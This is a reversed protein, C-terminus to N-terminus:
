LEKIKINRFWIPAGAHKGQFGIYGKTQLSALPRNLWSPIDSGDPNKKASTWKSMDMDTVKQGNLEISIHQGQCTIIYHNWQGPKKVVQQKNAALRGFIAGCQWTAPSESWQKSYDDAIQIEVSNPIWNATDTCYVVVGSNTGPATKFEVDLVFNEYQKDSWISKDETATLEGNEVSWVGAPYLANSLDAAFLPRWANKDTTNETSTTQAVVFTTLATLAILFTIRKMIFTQTIIKLEKFTEFEYM